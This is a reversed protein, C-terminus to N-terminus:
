EKRMEKVDNPDSVEVKIDDVTNTTTLTAIIRVNARVLVELNQITQKLGVVEKRLSIIQKENHQALQLSAILNFLRITDPDYGYLEMTSNPPQMLYDILPKVPKNDRYGSAPLTVSMLFIVAVVLIIRKM